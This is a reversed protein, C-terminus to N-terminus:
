QLRVMFERNDGVIRLFCGEFSLSYEKLRSIIKDIMEFNTVKKIGRKLAYGHGKVMRIPVHSTLVEKEFVLEQM